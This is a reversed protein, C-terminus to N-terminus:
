KSYTGKQWGHKFTYHLSIRGTSLSFFFFFFFLGKKMSVHWFERSFERIWPLNMGWNLSPLKTELDAGTSHNCGGTGRALSAAWSLSASIARCWLVATTWRPWSDPFALEGSRRVKQYIATKMSFTAALCSRIGAKCLVCGLIGKLLGNQLM